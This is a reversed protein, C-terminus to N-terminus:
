NDHCEPIYSDMLEPQYLLMLFIHYCNGGKKENGCKIGIIGHCM